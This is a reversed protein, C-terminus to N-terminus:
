PQQCSDYHPSSAYHQGKNKNYLTTLSTLLVVSAHCPLEYLRLAILETFYGATPIYGDYVM